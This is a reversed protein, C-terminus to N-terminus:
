FWGLIRMEPDFMGLTGVGNSSVLLRVTNSTTTGYSNTCDVYYLTGNDSSALTGTTYSSSTAGSIRAGERFVAAASFYTPTTTPSTFTAALAATSTVRKHEAIATNNTQPWTAGFASFGTGASPTDTSNSAQVTMASILAPQKSLTSTLGTTVANAATTGIPDQFNTAHAASAVSDYGSTNTISRALLARYNVSAGWTVTIVYTGASLNDATWHQWSTLFVSLSVDRQVWTASPSSTVTADPSPNVTYGGIGYLDISDGAGVTITVTETTGSPTNTYNAYQAVESAVTIQSAPSSVWQYSTAGTATVSFTATQGILSSQNTPQVTITPTLAAATWLVAGSAYENGATGGGVSDTFTGAVPTLSSIAISESRSAEAFFGVIGSTFGTGASPVSYLGAATNVVVASLFAPQSSPTITGTTIANAGTGPATQTNSSSGQLGATNGIERVWVSPYTVTAPWNVTFTLATASANSVRVYCSFRNSAGFYTQTEQLSYTQSASDVVSTPTSTGSTIIWVEISSGSTAATSLAPTTFTTLTAGTGEWSAQEQVVNTTGATPMLVEFALVHTSRSNNVTQTFTATQTGTATVNKYEAENAGSGILTFGTGASTSGTGPPAESNNISCGFVFCNAVTTASTAGSSIGNTGTGPLGSSSNQLQQTVRHVGGTTVVGGIEFIRLDIGLATTSFTTTVTHSGASANQLYYVASTQDANTSDALSSGAITYATGDSVSSIAAGGSAGFQIHVILTSGATVGTLSIAGSTSDGLSLINTYQVLKGAM